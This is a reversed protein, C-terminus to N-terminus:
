RRISTRCCERKEWRDTDDLAEAVLRALDQRAFLGVGFGRAANALVRHMTTSIM